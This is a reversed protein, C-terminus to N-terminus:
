QKYKKEKKVLKILKLRKLQGKIAVLVIFFLAGFHNNTQWDCIKFNPM